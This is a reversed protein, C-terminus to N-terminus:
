GGTNELVFKYLEPNIRKMQEKQDPTISDFKAKLSTQIMPLLKEERWKKEWELYRSQSTLISNETTIISTM